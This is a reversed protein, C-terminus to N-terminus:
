IATVDFGDGAFFDAATPIGTITRVSLPGYKAERSRSLTPTFQLNGREVLGSGSKALLRLM